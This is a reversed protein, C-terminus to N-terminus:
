QMNGLSRTHNYTNVSRDKLKENNNDIRNQTSSNNNLSEVEESDTFVEYENEQIKDIDAYRNLM